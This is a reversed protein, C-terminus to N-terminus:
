FEEVNRLEPVGKLHYKEGQKCTKGEKILEDKCKCTGNDCTSYVTNCDKDSLCELRSIWLCHLRKNM